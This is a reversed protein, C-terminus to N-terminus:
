EEQNIINIKGIFLPVNYKTDYIVFMFPRDLTVSYQDVPAFATTKIMVSTVAAAETGNRDVKIKTKQLIEDLMLNEDQIMNDCAEDVFIDSLGCSKLTDSLAFSSDFTFEPMMVNVSVSTKQSKLLSEFDLDSFTCNNSKPLIAVFEYRSDSYPKVFGTAVDNEIYTDSIFNMMQCTESKGNSNFSLPSFAMNGHNNCLKDCVAMSHKINDNSKNYAVSESGSESSESSDTVSESIISSESNNDRGCGTICCLLSTIFLITMKNRM